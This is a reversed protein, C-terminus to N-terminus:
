RYGVPNCPQDFCPNSRFIEQEQRKGVFSGPLHHPSYLAQDASVDVPEPSARKVMYAIYDQSPLTLTDTVLLPKRDEVPLVCFVKEIDAECLDLVFPCDKRFSRDETVDIAQRFVPSGANMFEDGQPERMEAVDHIFNFVNNPEIICLLLVQVEHVKIIQQCVPLFQEKLMFIYPLVICGLGEMHLRVM